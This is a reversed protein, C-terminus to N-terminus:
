PRNINGWGQSRSRHIPQGKITKGSLSVGDAFDQLLEDLREEDRSKIDLDADRAMRATWWRVAGALADILDDFKLCGRDRTIRTLQYLGTKLVADPDGSRSRDLIMSDVVGEDLILKHSALAPELNDCIRVEKQGTVHDDEVGCGSPYLRHLVPKLLEAYMGDGFNSEIVIVNVKEEKAITAIKALAEPTYGGDLGGWRRVVLQGHIMKIVCYGTLDRGRGSPDVYLISGEYPSWGEAAHMARFLRDGPLGVLPVHAMEQDEGTGWVFKDPCIDVDTRAVIFDRLKLPNRDADSLTTDLMFQLAYGIKGYELKREALEEVDFRDPDTPAGAAGDAMMKTICPGLCGDYTDSNAPVEAPWVQFVYGREPLKGYLSDEVQPTGLIVVGGKEGAKSAPTLIAGGMEAVLTLIKERQSASESNNVVEVDDGVILDARSGTMQGTIGVSKVSPAHAPKCGRIDFAVNSERDGKRRDPALHALLPTEAIVRKTFISFADSREKSASVVLVKLEIDNWLNWVVFASCIWSKGVGRFAQVGIRRGGHQLFHAIDLQVPTPDPLGLIRWIYVLFLPFSDRLAQETM